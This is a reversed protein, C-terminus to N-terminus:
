FTSRLIPSNTARFMIPQNLFNLLRFITSDQQNNVDNYGGRTQRETRGPDAHFVDAGVPRFKMFDSM